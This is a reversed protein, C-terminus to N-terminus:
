KRLKKSAGTDEALDSAKRVKSSKDTADFESKQAKVFGSQLDGKNVTFDSKPNYSGQNAGGQYGARPNATAQAGGDSKELFNLRKEIYTRCEVGIEADEAEGSLHTTLFPLCSPLPCSRTNPLCTCSILPCIIILSSDSYYPPVHAIIVVHVIILVHVNIVM